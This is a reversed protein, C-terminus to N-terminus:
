TAGKEVPRARFQIEVDFGLARAYRIITSELLVNQGSEIRSITSPRVKM